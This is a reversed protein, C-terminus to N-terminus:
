MAVLDDCREKGDPYLANLLDIVLQHREEVVLRPRVLHGAGHQCGTGIRPDIRANTLEHLTMESLSRSPVGKRSVKCGCGSNM